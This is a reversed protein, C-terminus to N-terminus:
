EDSEETENKPFMQGEQKEIWGVLDCEWVRNTSKERIIDGVSMSTHQLGAAKILERAEGNPSWREGQMVVFVEELDKAYLSGLYCHTITYNRKNVNESPAFIPDYKYYVDYNHPRDEPNTIRNVREMNTLKLQALSSM